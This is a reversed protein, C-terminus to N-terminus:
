FQRLIAMIPGLKPLPFPGFEILPFILLIAIKEAQSPHTEGM